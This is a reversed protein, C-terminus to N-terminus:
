EENEAELLDQIRQRVEAIGDKKEEKEVVEKIRKLTQASVLKDGEGGELPTLNIFRRAENITVVGYECGAKMKELDFEENVNEPEEHALEIDDYEFGNAILVNTFRHAELKLLPLIADQKFQERQESSNLKGTTSDIVGLVIPQMGYVAMIKNLLWKQYEFFQMDSPKENIRTFKVDKANTIVMKQGKKRLEEDWYVKNKKMAKESMGIISLVGSLMGSHKLIRQNFKAAEIDNSIDDWLTEIPSLGYASGAVPNAIMYIVEWQKFTALNKTSDSPDILKYASDESKFNGHKDLNLRVDVGKLDYIEQPVDKNDYVIEVAGADYVLLDRLYKKRIDDFSEVKDNPNELLATVEEIHKKTETSVKGNEGKASDKARVVIRYKVAEKIIKDVCARAWSSTWYLEWIDSADANKIRIDRDIYESSSSITWANAEDIQGRTSKIMRESPTKSLDLTDIYSKSENKAKDKKYYKRWSM